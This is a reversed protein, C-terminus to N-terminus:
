PEVPCLTGHSGTLILIFFPSTIIFSQNIFAHKFGFVILHELGCFLLLLLIFLM